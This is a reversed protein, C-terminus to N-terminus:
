SSFLHTFSTGYHFHHDNYYSNGFDQVPDGTAFSGSSVVGKWVNDYVLPFIQHNDVFRAYAQKLRELGQSALNRDELLDHVTYILTAFKSLAKGSFYMSDLNSQANIDQALEAKAVQGIFHITGASLTTKSRTTPLWPAFHLGAPLDSELLTWCDSLVATAMGKTATQLQLGVMKRATIHDFSQVHHPLAFMLLSQGQGSGVKVWGIEYVGQTGSASAQVCAERAFVGASSDYISEGSSGSPNKCIQIIGSWGRLGQIQTSSVFQLQPNAGNEPIAYILWSKGDALFIRYKFVGRKSQGVPAMSQFAVASQIAPMLGKYEATVFGMGQVLPFTISSSSGAQPALHVNVSMHKLSDITLATSPGLEVASLIISQIGIPNIYYQVPSGPIASNQPGYARQYDDVHSIAMGWSRLDGGGKSWSVSYPYTWVGQNQNGLFLNAYFKNTPVPDSQSAQPYLNSLNLYKDYSPVASVIGLRPVPHDNRSPIQSPIRETSVPQFCDTM